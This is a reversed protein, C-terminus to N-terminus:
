LTKSWIISLSKQYVGIGLMKQCIKGSNRANKGFTKSNWAHFSWSALCALASEVLKELNL